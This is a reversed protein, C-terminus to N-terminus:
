PACEPLGPLPFQTALHRAEDAIRAHLVADEPAHLVSAIMTAIARCEDAGFGRTTIAPSGLRIGSAQTPPRTDGPITNKNCTIGVTELLHEARKGSLGLAGVDVLMLHNDTGGSVIPLGMVALETAMTQANDIVAQAYSRFEPQLAEGFAVAKAAIVHMLPGGQFGPFISKDIAKAHEEGCLIM